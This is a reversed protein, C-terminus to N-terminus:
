CFIREEINFEVITKCDVSTWDFDPECGLGWVIIKCLTTKGSV